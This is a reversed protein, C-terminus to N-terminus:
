DGKRALATAYHCEVQPTELYVEDLLLLLGLIARDDEADENINHYIQSLALHYILGGTLTIEADPFYHRVADLIRGSDAAESPDDKIIREPTKRAVTKSLFPTDHRAPYWPDKLMREPLLRRVRTALALAKDSWQWRTPGIFDNMYFMGGPRLVERSWRVADFTDMMHHLSGHWHVFDVSGPAIVEFANDGRVEVRDALQKRAALEAAKQRRTESLDFLIFRKVVGQEMLRMEKNGIGCGVSVGVEFPVGNIRKKVIDVLGQGLKDSHSNSILRNVHQRVMPSQWWNIRDPKITETRSNWHTAIQQKTQDEM